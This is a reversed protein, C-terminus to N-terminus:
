SEKRLKMHMLLSRMAEAQASLEESAAASEEAIASNSYVIDTVKEVDSSVANVENRQKITANLIENVVDAVVDINDGTKRLASATEKAVKNGKEVSNMM